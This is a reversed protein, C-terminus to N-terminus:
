KIMVLFFVENIMVGERMESLEEGIGGIRGKKSRVLVRTEEM